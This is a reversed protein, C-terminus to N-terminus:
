AQIRTGTKGQIAETMKEVSTIIVSEGGSEIFNIAAQIKPGMSGAPFQGESLHRKAERITLNDLLVEERQRYNLAVKDVATL